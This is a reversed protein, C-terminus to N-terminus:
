TNNINRTEDQAPLNPRCRSVCVCMALFMCGIFFTLIDPPCCPSPTPTRPPPQFSDFFSAAQLTTFHSPQPRLVVPLTGDPKPCRLFRTSRGGYKEKKKQRKCMPKARVHEALWRMIINYITKQMKLKSIQFKFDPLLFYMFNNRISHRLRSAM